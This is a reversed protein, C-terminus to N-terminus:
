SLGNNDIEDNLISRKSEHGKHMTASARDMIGVLM